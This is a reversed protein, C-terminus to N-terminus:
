PGGFVIILNPLVKKLAGAIKLTSEINWIYCSFGVVEPQILYIDGIIHQLEENVTYDKIAVNCIDECYVKMDRIALSTHVYKANLTTLLIKL